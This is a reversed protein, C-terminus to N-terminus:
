VRDVSILFMTFSMSQDVEVNRGRAFSYFKSLFYKGLHVRRLEEMTLPNADSRWAEDFADDDVQTDHNVESSTEEIRYFRKAMMTDGSDMIFQDSVPFM